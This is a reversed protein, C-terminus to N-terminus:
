TTYMRVKKLLKLPDEQDVKFRLLNRMYPRINKDKMGATGGDNRVHVMPSYHYDRTPKKRLSMSRRRIEKVGPFEIYPAKEMTVIECELESNTSNQAEEQETKMAMLLYQDKACGATENQDFGKRWRGLCPQSLSRDLIMQGGQVQMRKSNGKFMWMKGRAISSATDNITSNVGLRGIGYTKELGHFAQGMDNGFVIDVDLYYVLEVQDLRSDRSMYELAYTKFRKYIM